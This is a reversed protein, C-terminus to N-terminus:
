ALSVEYDVIETANAWEDSDDEEHTEWFGPILDGAYIPKLEYEEKSADMLLEGSCKWCKTYRDGCWGYLAYVGSELQVLSIDKDDWWSGVYKM